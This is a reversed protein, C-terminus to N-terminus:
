EDESEGPYLDRIIHQTHVALIEQLDALSSLYSIVSQTLMQANDMLELPGGLDPQVDPLAQILESMKLTVDRKAELMRALHTHSHAMHEIIETILQQQM